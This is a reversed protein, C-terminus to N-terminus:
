SQLLENARVWNERAQVETERGQAIRADIEAPFEAWYEVAARIMPVAVDSTEGVLTLVEDVSLDPEADRASILARIVSDVDPGGTLRARRGSPGDVFSILPHAANRLAEDVLLNGASSLSMGPHSRVFANLRDLVRPDFRVSSPGAMPRCQLHSREM